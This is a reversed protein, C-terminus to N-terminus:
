SGQSTYGHSLRSCFHDLVSPSALKTIKGALEELCFSTFGNCLCSCFSEASSTWPYYCGCELPERAAHRAHPSAPAPLPAGGCAALHNDVRGEDIYSAGSLPEQHSVHDNSPVALMGRGLAGHLGRQTPPTQLAERRLASTLLTM